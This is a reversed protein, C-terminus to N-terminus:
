RELEKKTRPDNLEYMEGPNYFKWDICESYKIIDKYTPKKIKLRKIAMFLATRRMGLMRAARWKNWGTSLLAHVMFQREIDHMTRKLNFIM